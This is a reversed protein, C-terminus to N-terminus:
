AFAVARCLPLERIRRGTLAFVANALAPAAPPTAPEGVGALAAGNQLIRTEIRPTQHMRLLDQDHFNSQEVRGDAFTIEGMMAASLGFLIGSQIQAEINRPDLATGVDQACWVTEIAIGRATQRVEVIQATPAGYSLAFAVGRARDPPLPAGWDAMAAVTELVTASVAHEARLLDLRMAVPDQGGAEALEDLFCELFFANYSHGVSRWFGIPVAVDSAHGTVRFNPIAYPQDFCGEVIFKDPGPPAIGAQRKIQTRAISAAAVRADLATPAQAGPLGAMRAIAGPRYFDHRFDEERTWTLQVPIGPQALAILTAQIAVDAEARRGFGGGMLTTHVTVAEPDIGATEAARTRVSTPAQTGTWITLRGDQFLATANMPELTAHALYPVRYEARLVGEGALAAEVDGDDRLARDPSDAFAEAIRAFVGQTDPPYPAPGWAVEVAEVARMAAWTNQAVVAVANGLDVVATVGPLGETAAADFSLMPGGLNPNARVAAYRMGELRVDIGFVATGAVKAAMDLRPLSRGLLRWEARPKLPPDSPARILAADEALDAYALRAGDSAVVAGAETRLDALPLGLRQAAAELMVARAAAGAKRMREFADVISTSGGTIQMPILGAGLDVAAEAADKLRSERYEVFPLGLPIISANAYVTSAPGHMARVEAWDLDMEEAVLAALTTHIGQGMEARPTIVTVGDRTVLVYPNLAVEGTGPELPNPGPGSARWVGFAVGGAIAMSGILFARRAIM